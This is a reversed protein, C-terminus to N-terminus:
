SWWGIPKKPEPQAKVSKPFRKITDPHVRWYDDMGEWWKWVGDWYYAGENFFFGAKGHPNWYIADEFWQLGNPLPNEVPKPREVAKGTNIFRETWYEVSEHREHWMNHEADWAYVADKTLKRWTRPPFAHTTGEPADEWNIDM